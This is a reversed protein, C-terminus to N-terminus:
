PIGEACSQARLATWRREDLWDASLALAVGCAFGLLDCPLAFGSGFGVYTHEFAQAVGWLALFFASPVEVVPWFFFVFPMFAKVRTHLYLGAYVGLLLSITCSPGTAWQGPLGLFRHSLPGWIAGVAWILCTKGLGFRREVAPCFVMAYWADVLLELGSSPIWPALVFRLVSPWALDDRGYCDGGPLAAWRALWGDGLFNIGHFSAIVALFFITATPRKTGPVTTGFPLM